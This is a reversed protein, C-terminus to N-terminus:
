QLGLHEKLTVYVVNRMRVLGIMATQHCLYHPLGSRYRYNHPGLTYFPTEDCYETTKGHKRQDRM